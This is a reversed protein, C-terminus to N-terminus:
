RRLQEHCQICTETPTAFNLMKKFQTGHARHCSECGVSLNKNRPDRVKEGIPHTSHQGWDHCGACLDFDASKKTMFMFNSSHPDHCDTCRGEIVPEHKSINGSLRKLTDAHCEGCLQVMPKRMLAKDESAHPNHCALCGNKSIVPWHVRNKDFTKNFMENHCGRCLSIGEKKTKLPTASNPEEHCQNCMRKSVPSHVNKLLLGSNDSGHPDHCGTCRSNAVPYGMHKKIFIPKDTKHCGTCLQTVPDKLLSEGKDSFHPLHCTLCDKEVPSHKYKVKSYREGLVKHCSFCLQKGEKILNNKNAASHPDHCKMCDGDAVVKHISKAKTSVMPPHCLNCVKKPDQALLKGHSSTHASHCGTCENKKLPTHVFKRAMKEQFASHCKMCINGRAGAKLKFDQETAAALLLETGAILMIGALLLSSSLVRM